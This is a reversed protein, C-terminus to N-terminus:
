LGYKKLKYWLNRESIGLRRAAEAKNDNTEDLAQLITRREFQDVAEHLPLGRVPDTSIHLAAGQEQEPPEEIQMSSPMMARLDSARVVPGSALVAIREMLNRLERVNGPWAYRQLAEITDDALEGPERALDRAFKELFFRALIPIDDPRDCLPPLHVRFTNLRYYLDHRFRKRAIADDLDQNTASLVRVDVHIRRNSGLPEVVGDEIVRLLKAQLLLPMDGIEDLFLTGGNAFEFKGEREKGAGTFAGRAHGFLESELLEPPLAACNLPVFLKEHRPSLKHISRAVLEKGTGTEGTILVASPTPAIKDILAALERTGPLPLMESEWAHGLQEKLFRNEARYRHFELAKRIVQELADNDYPKLVYDFAGNRMAEIATQITGYATLVIVPTQQDYSRIEELLDIGSMGPMKLDTLVVDFRETRLHKLAEEGNEAGVSEFGLREMMIQLTRRLKRDDDAILIRNM